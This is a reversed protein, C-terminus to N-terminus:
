FRWFIFLDDSFLNELRNVECWYAAAEDSSLSFPKGNGFCLTLRNGVIQITPPEAM